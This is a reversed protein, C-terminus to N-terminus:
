FPSLFNALSHHKQDRASLIPATVGWDFGFSDWHIGSDAQPAHVTNTKYLMLAEDSLVAFGHAIGIPIFLLHASEGCLEVSVSKGYGPGKRLDLLVDKVTGKACYVLKDHAHPPLQFHMGRLVDRRSVSYFEERIELSVGLSKFLEEHYTKVFLGRSDEFRQSQLLFCGPLLEQLVRM